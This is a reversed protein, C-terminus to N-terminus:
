GIEYLTWRSELVDYPASLIEILKLFNEKIREELLRQKQMVIPVYCACIAELMIMLIETSIILNFLFKKVWGNKLDVAKAVIGRVRM